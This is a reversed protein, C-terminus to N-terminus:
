QKIIRESQKQNNSFLQMIYIGRPQSSINVNNFGKVGTGNRIIRGNIDSLQYQYPVPAFVTIDSEILTSVKFINDTVPNIGKLFVTNSYATQGIVSTVKLRYYLSENQFPSYSFSKGTATVTTLNKFNSGDASSELVISQIPEDAIINWNLNHKSNNNNGSLTIEHIPLAVASALTYSGLSGYEGTNINGTGDIRVYYTGANLVTDIVVSMTAAPDYTKIISGASNLLDIKIDLNAGTNNAGVHFPIASLYFSRGQPLVFRFADKDTNTSIIGDKSFNGATITTTSANLTETYDDIRYGFGNEETIISLNDQFNTCGYPTPGNNWNSMNQYYSNGMIPAWGSEGSGSGLNYPETPTMCDSGYKSQHSLGVAHGSEHSCAEGVMKPSNPGLRDCFVFGPTDDGWKFSGIYTVGGVGSYWYSTPTVIVRIRKNIPAALFATSDTTINIDFPRFDEATRNFVETIAADTMGSAACNIPSGGNWVTSHVYHGDFDLFITASASPFSSLKPVAAAALAFVALMALLYLKKM